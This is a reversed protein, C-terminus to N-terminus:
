NTRNKDFYERLKKLEPLIKVIADLDLDQDMKEILPRLSAISREQFARGQPTIFVLKSRGDKPNEKIEILGRASLKTLTNTMTAKTVQFARAIRLPTWGDGVRCLHSIVGFHSIHLGEPLRHNFENAALQHIIGIETLLGFM